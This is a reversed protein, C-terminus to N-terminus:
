PLSVHRYQRGVNGGVPGV